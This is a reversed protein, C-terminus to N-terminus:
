ILLNYFHQSTFSFGSPFQVSFQVKHFFWHLFYVELTFHVRCTHLLSCLTCKNTRFTESTGSYANLAFNCTVSLATIAHFAACDYQIDDIFEAAGSIDLIIEDEKSSM